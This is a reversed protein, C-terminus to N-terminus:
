FGFKFVHVTLILCIVKLLLVVIPLLLDKAFPYVFLDYIMNRRLYGEIYIRESFILMKIM